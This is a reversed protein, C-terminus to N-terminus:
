QYFQNYMQGGPYQVPVSDQPHLQQSNQNGTQGQGAWLCGKQQPPVWATTNAPYPLAPSGSPQFSPTPLSPGVTPISGSPQYSSIPTQCVPHVMTYTPQAVKSVPLYSTFAPAPPANYGPLSPPNEKEKKEFADMKRHLDSLSECLFSNRVDANFNDVKPNKPNNMNPSEFSRKRKQENQDESHKFPCDEARLNCNRNRWRNCVGSPHRGQCHSGQDCMGRVSYSKCTFESHIFRCNSNRCMARDNFSCRKQNGDMQSRKRETEKDNDQEPNPQDNRGLIEVLNDIENELRKNKTEAM